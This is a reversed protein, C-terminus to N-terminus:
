RGFISRASTGQMGSMVHNAWRHHCHHAKAAERLKGETDAWAIVDACSMARLNDAMDAQEALVLEAAVSRGALDALPLRDFPRHTWGNLEALESALRLRLADMETPDAMAEGRKWGKSTARPARTRAARTVALVREALEEADRELLHM